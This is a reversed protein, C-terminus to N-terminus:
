EEDEFDDDNECSCCSDCYGCTYCVDDRLRADCSECKEGDTVITLFNGFVLDGDNVECTFETAVEFQPYSAWGRTFFLAPTDTVEIIAITGSDVGYVKNDSGVYSGDGHATPLIWVMKGDGYEVPREGDFAGDITLLNDYIPRDLVYCPDAVVYKGPKMVYEAGRVGNIVSRGGFEFEVYEMMVALAAHYSTTARVKAYVENAQDRLGAQRLV